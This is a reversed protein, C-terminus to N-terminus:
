SDRATVEGWGALPVLLLRTTAHHGPGREEPPGLADTAFVPQPQSLLLLNLADSYIISNMHM